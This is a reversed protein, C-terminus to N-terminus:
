DADSIMGGICGLLANDTQEVFHVATKPNDGYVRVFAACDLAGSNAAYALDDGNVRDPDYFM